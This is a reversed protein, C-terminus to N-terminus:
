TGRIFLRSFTWSMSWWGAIWRWIGGWTKPRLPNVHFSTTSQLFFLVAWENRTLDWCIDNTRKSLFTGPLIGPPFRNNTALITTRDLCSFTAILLTGNDDMKWRGKGMQLPWTVAGVLCLAVLEFSLEALVRVSSLLITLCFFHSILHLISSIYKIYTIYSINYITAKCAHINVYAAVCDICGHRFPWPQVCENQTENRHKERQNPNPQRRRNKLVPNRQLKKRKGLGLGRLLHNKLLRKLNRSGTKWHLVQRQPQRRKSRSSLGLFSVNAYTQLLSCCRVFAAICYYIM